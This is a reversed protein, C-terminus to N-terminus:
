HQTPNLPQLRLENSTQGGLIPLYWSTFCDLGTGQSQSGPLIAGLRIRKLHYLGSIEEALGGYSCNLTDGITFMENDSVWKPNTLKPNTMMFHTAKGFRYNKMTILAGKINRWSGCNRTERLEENEELIRWERGWNGINGVIRSREM